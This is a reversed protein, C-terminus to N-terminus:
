TKRGQISIYMKQGDKTTRFAETKDVQLQALDLSSKIEGESRLYLTDRHSIWAKHAESNATILLFHGKPKLVRALELSAAKLDSLLHWVAVSFVSDMSSNELPLAYANGILFKKNKSAYLKQARAILDTSPDIGTYQKHNLDLASSCVGQGCGVELVTQAHTQSLWSRLMPYIDKERIQADPHEIIQIWEEATQSDFKKDDM